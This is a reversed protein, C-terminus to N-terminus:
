QKPSKAVIFAAVDDVPAGDCSWKVIGRVNESVVESGDALTCRGNRVPEGFESYDFPKSVIKGIAASSPMCGGIVLRDDNVTAIELRWEGRGSNDYQVVVCKGHPLKASSVM